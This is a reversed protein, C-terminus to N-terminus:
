YLDPFFLEVSERIPRNEYLYQYHATTVLVKRGYERPERFPIAELFLIPPLHGFSKLWSRMRGPGANYAFLAYMYSGFRKHMDSFYRAGVPISFDPDTLDIEEMGMKGATEGATAPMLQTLGM